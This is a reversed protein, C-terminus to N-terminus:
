IIVTEGRKKFKETHVILFVCVGLQKVNIQSCTFAQYFTNKSVLLTVYAKAYVRAGLTSFLELQTVM